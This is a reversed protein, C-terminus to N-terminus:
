LDTTKLRPINPNIRTVIEYHITGAAHALDHASAYTNKSWGILTVTDGEQVKPIDTVDVMSMNMCINGLIRAKKGHIFVKAKNGASRPLGEYYGCAIVGLRTRRNVIITRNYGIASGKPINKIQVLRTKWSLVPKLPYKNSINAPNIPDLGYLAIGARAVTQPVSFRKLVSASCSLHAYPISYNKQLEKITKGFIGIQTKTVTDNNESSSFHSFVGRLQANPPLFKFFAKVDKPLIGLRSTGTDIKIHVAINRRMKKIAELQARSYVVVHINHYSLAPLDSTHYYSLVLIPKTIGQERLRLAEQANTVGLFAVEARPAIERAVLDVGHGYANSKVVAILPCQAQQYLFDVNAHLARVDIEVWNFESRSVRISPKGRGVTAVSGAEGKWHAECCPIFGRKEASYSGAGMAKGNDLSKKAM